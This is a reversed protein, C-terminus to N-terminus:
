ILCEKDIEQFVETVSVIVKEYLGCQIGLIKNEHEENYCDLSKDYNPYKLLAKKQEIIVLEILAEAEDISLYVKGLHSKNFADRLKKYDYEDILEKILALVEYSLSVERKFTQEIGSKDKIPKEYVMMEKLSDPPELGTEEKYLASFDKFINNFSKNLQCIMKDRELESVSKDSCELEELWLNLARMSFIYDSTTM